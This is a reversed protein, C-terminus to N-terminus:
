RRAARGRGPRRPGEPHVLHEQPADEAPGPEGRRLRGRDGPRDPRGAGGPRRRGRRDALEGPLRRRRLHDAQRGPRARARRAAAGARGARPRPQGRVDGGDAPLTVAYGQGALTCTSRAAPPRCRRRRRRAADGRRRRGAAAGAARGASTTLESVLRNYPQIAVSRPRPSWPSSARAARRDPRGPQPPQRRRGGARRRRGARAAADQEAAPGSCGSPTPAAPRTSTPPPRRAPPPSPRECRPTCSARGPRDAAAAGALASSGPADALAVRERVKAIFVDENRIVLGPEDASTSIQDTDVMAFMGTRRSRRRRRQDPLPRGGARRPRLQRRGARGRGAPRVADPLADLFSRGLSEPARHPMEVGLASHPNAEIIATIEADDAFEDYNQAGTGGTTIWARTIPHVVTM